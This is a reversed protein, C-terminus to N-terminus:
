KCRERWALVVRAEGQRAPVCGCLVFGAEYRWSNGQRGLKVTGWIRLGLKGRALVVGSKVFEIRRFDKQKLITRGDLQYSANRNPGNEPKLPRSVKTLRAKLSHTPTSFALPKHQLGFAKRSRVITEPVQPVSSWRPNRVLVERDLNVDPGPDLSNFSRIAPVTRQGIVDTDAANRLPHISRLAAM